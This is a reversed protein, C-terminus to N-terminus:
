KGTNIYSVCAGQNKFPTFNSRVLNQWAGNKCSDHTTPIAFTTFRVAPTFRTWKTDLRFVGVGGAGGDTYNAPTMTNWYVTDSDVDTGVEILRPPELLGVNLSEYPGPAFFPEYGWTNTNYAIGYIFQEPLDYNLSRLDFTITFAFGNYCETDAARWATRGPCTPNAEPRWPITFSQTVTQVPMHAAASAADVYINLTMAHTFGAAPM